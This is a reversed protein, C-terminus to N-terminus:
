KWKEEQIQKSEELIKLFVSKVFKFNGFKNTKSLIENERERNFVPMGEKIKIEVIAKAIDARRNLLPMLTGDILDIENRMQILEQNKM